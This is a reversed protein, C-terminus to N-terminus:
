VRLGGCKGLNVVSHFQKAAKDYFCRFELIQGSAVMTDFQVHHTYIYTYSRMCLLHMCFINTCYVSTLHLILTSPRPNPM